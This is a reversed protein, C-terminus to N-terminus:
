WIGLPGPSPTRAFTAPAGVIAPRQDVSVRVAIMDKAIYEGFQIGADFGDAVLDLHAESTVVDLVVEPYHRAFEGLRPGLPQRGDDGFHVGRQDLLQAALANRNDEVVDPRRPAVDGVDPDVVAAAHGLQRRIEVAEPWRRM